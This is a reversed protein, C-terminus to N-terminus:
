WPMRETNVAAVYTGYDTADDITEAAEEMLAAMDSTRVKFGADAALRLRETLTRDPDM